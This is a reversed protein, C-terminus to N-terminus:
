SNRFYLGFPGSFNRVLRIERHVHVIFLTDMRPSDGYSSLKGDPGSTVLWVLAM